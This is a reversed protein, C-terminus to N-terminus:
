GFNYMSNAKVWKLLTHRFNATARAQRARRGAVGGGLDQQPSARGLGHRLSARTCSVRVEGTAATCVGGVGGWCSGVSLGSQESACVGGNCRPSARSVSM